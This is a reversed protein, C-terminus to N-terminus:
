KDFKREKKDKYPSCLTYKWGHPVKELKHWGRYFYREDGFYRGGPSINNYWTDYEPCVDPSVKQRCYALVKERDCEQTYVKVIKYHNGGCERQGAFMKKYHM